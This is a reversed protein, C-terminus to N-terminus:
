LQTMEKIDNKTDSNSPVALKMSLSSIYEKYVESPRVYTTHGAANSTFDSWPHEVNPKAKPHKVGYTWNSSDVTLYNGNPLKERIVIYHRNNTWMGGVSLSVMGGASLTRDVRSQTVGNESETLFLKKGNYRFTDMVTSSGNWNLTHGNYISLKNSPDPNLSPSLYAAMIIEPPTVYKHLMTSSIISLSSFGCGAQSYTTRDNSLGDSGRSAYKLPLTAWKEVGRNGDRMQTFHIIGINDQFNNKWIDPINQERWLNTTSIGPAIGFSDKYLNAVTPNQSKFLEFVETGTLQKGQLDCYVGQPLGPTETLVGTKVGTNKNNIISGDVSRVPLTVTGDKNITIGDNKMARDHCTCNGECTCNRLLDKKPITEGGYSCSVSSSTKIDKGSTGGGLGYSSVTGQGDKFYTKYDNSANSHIDYSRISKIKHGNLVSMFRQNRGSRVRCLELISFSALRGKSNGGVLKFQSQCYGNSITDDMYSKYVPAPGYHQAKADGLICPIVTGNDLVVDIYLGVARIIGKEKAIPPDSKAGTSGTYYSKDKAKELFDNLAESPKQTVRYNAAVVVRGDVIELDDPAFKGQRNTDPFTHGNANEETVANLGKHNEWDGLGNLPSSPNDWFQSYDTDWYEYATPLFTYNDYLPVSKENEIYKGLVGSNSNAVQVTNDLSLGKVSSNSSAVRAVIQEVTEKPEIAKGEREYKEKTSPIYGFPDSKDNPAWLFRYVSGMKNHIETSHPVFKTPTKILDKRDVGDILLKSIDNKSDHEDAYNPLVREGKVIVNVVANYSDENYKGREMFDKNSHKKDGKTGYFWGCNDIFEDVPKTSNNREYLNIMITAEAMLGAIGGNSQEQYCLRALRKIQNDNLEYTKFGYPNAGSAPSNNIYTSGSLSDSSVSTLHKGGHTRYYEELGIYECKCVPTDDTKVVKKITVIYGTFTLMFMLGVAMRYMVTLRHATVLFAITTAILGKRKKKRKRSLM